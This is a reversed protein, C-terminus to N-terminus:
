FVFFNYLALNLNASAKQELSNKLARKFIRVFNEALGNVAPPYPPSM